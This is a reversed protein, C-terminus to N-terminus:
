EQRLANIKIGIFLINKSGAIRNAAAATVSRANIMLSLVLSRTNEFGARRGRIIKRYRLRVAFGAQNM